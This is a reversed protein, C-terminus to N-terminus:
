QVIVNWFIGTPGFWKVWEAVPRVYLKSITGSAAGAPIAIKFKFTYTSGTGTVSDIQVIRNSALWTSDKLPSTNDQPMWTGLKIIHASDPTTPYWWARGINKLTLELDVTSGAAGHVEHAKKDTSLIGSQSIWQARYDFAWPKVVVPPTTPTTPTTPAIVPPIIPAQLTKGSVTMPDGLNGVVDEPVLRYFYTTDSTLNTDTFTKALGSDGVVQAIPTTASNVANQSAGRYVNVRYFDNATPNTWSLILSSATSATVTANSVPVPATLDAFQAPYGQMLTTAASEHGSTDISTLYVWYVTDYVLHDIIYEGRQNPQLQAVDTVSRKGFTIPSTVAFYVNIGALTSDNPNVWFIPLQYVGDARSIRVSHPAAISAHAPMAFM